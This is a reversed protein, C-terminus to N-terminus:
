SKLGPQFNVKFNYLEFRFGITFRHSLGSSARPVPLWWKSFFASSYACFCLHLLKSTLRTSKWQESMHWLWVQFPTTEIGIFSFLKIHNNTTNLHETISKGRIYFFKFFLGTLNRIHGIEHKTRTANTDIKGLVGFFVLTM